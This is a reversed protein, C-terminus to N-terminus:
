RESILDFLFTDAKTLDDEIHSIRECDSRLKRQRYSHVVDSRSSMKSILFERNAIVAFFLEQPSDTINLSSQNGVASLELGQPFELGRRSMQCCRLHYLSNATVLRMEYIDRTQGDFGSYRTYDAFAKRKTLDMTHITLPINVSAMMAGMSLFLTDNMSSQYRETINFTIRGRATLISLSL